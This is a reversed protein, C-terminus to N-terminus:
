EHECFTLVSPRNDLRHGSLKVLMLKRRREIAKEPDACICYCCLRSISQTVRTCAISESRYCNRLPYIVAVKALGMIALSQIPVGVEARIVRTCVHPFFIFLVFQMWRYYDLSLHAETQRTPKRQPSGPSSWRRNSSDTNDRSATANNEVGVYPKSTLLAVHLANLLILSM